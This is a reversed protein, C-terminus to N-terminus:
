IQGEHSYIYRKLQEIEADKLEIVYLLMKGAAEDNRHRHEAAEWISKTDVPEGADIKAALFDDFTTTTMDDVEDGQGGRVLAAGAM